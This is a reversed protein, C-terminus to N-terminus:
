MEDVSKNGKFMIHRDNIVKRSSMERVQSLRAVVNAENMVRNEIPFDDVLENPSTIDDEMEGGSHPNAV